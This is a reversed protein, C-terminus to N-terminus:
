LICQSHNFGFTKYAGYFCRIGHYFCGVNGKDTAGLHAGTEYGNHNTAIDASYFRGGVGASSGGITRIAATRPEIM